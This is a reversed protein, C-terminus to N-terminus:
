SLLEQLVEGHVDTLRRQAGNHYFTLKEHNLGLLHLVTAHFDYVSVPKDGAFYGIEDSAGYSFGPKLGAGAMWITFVHQHHDRGKGNIGETMPTRGFETTWLVLTDELLGRAKLDKLLGAIPKDMTAAQNTHNEVINEHGDWNIRPSGFAGGNFLQVFRVGREILRRAMLCNRGFGATKESDLGYMAKTAETESKLDTTEPVSLQMRAALEYSRIRAALTSDAPNRELFERNMKELLEMGAKRARSSVNAPTALDVIPDGTTRFAVGQHVAPLFGSTWNISGGAPLQRSDPLVVFAPLDQNESGLGYSIWAGMCPFGNMTFGSNMQFTAPTHNSSKAVMSRIFTMDDACAGLNPLLDSVWAGSKGYQKFGFPSKMLRGPRGFFTDVKGKNSVEEGHHKILDPKYDFTDLHSVGGAAYIHIVRKARAPFHPPKPAYPSAPLAVETAMGKEQALLWALAIGSM